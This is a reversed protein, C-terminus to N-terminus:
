YKKEEKQLLDLLVSNISGVMREIWNEKWKGIM